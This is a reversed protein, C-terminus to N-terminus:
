AAAPSSLVHATTADLVLHSWVRLSPAEFLPRLAEHKPTACEGCPGGLLVVHKSGTRAMAALEPLEFLTVARVGSKVKIPGKASFPLYQLDGVWQQRKLDSLGKAGWPRLFRNLAGHDDSASALSTVVIDVADKCEFSERVGPQTKVEDYRNWPVAAQVFLSRYGVRTPLDQFFAFFAVPARMPDTIDFGSSLAHLVLPPCNVEDRLRLALRRAVQMTTWGSGLGLHVVEKRCGVERILELIWDAGTSSVHENATRDSAAVVRIRNRDLKYKSALQDALRADLPPRLLLFKRHVAEIIYPYVGERSLGLADAIKTPAEGRLFADLVKLVLEDKANPRRRLKPM